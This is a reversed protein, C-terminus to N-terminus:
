SKDSSAPLISCFTAFLGISAALAGRELGISGAYADWSTRPHGLQGLEGLQVLM